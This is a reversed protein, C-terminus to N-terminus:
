KKRVYKFDYSVTWTKGDDTSNEALQRVTNADIPFFTLKGLVKQGNANTSETEYRLAGDKFSGSYRVPGGASGIWYQYWKGTTTDYFNLSKGGLNASASPTWNELIACGAAVSQIVNTGAKGGAPTLVDWEGIWFNFQKAQESYMCPRVQRDVKEELAKFKVDQSILALDPDSFNIAVLATKPNDVTKTLWDLAKEKDGMRGYMCAANFMAFGSGGIEASKEFATAAKDNQKLQALAQGMQYWARGNKPENKIVSGYAAIAESYKKANLLGDAAAMEPSPAAPTTQAVIVLSRLFVVFLIGGLQLWKSRM